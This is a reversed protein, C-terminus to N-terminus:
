HVFTSFYYSPVNPQSSRKPSPFSLKKILTSNQNCETIVSFLSIIAMSLKREQKRHKVMYLYTKAINLCICLLQFIQYNHPLPSILSEVVTPSYVELYMCEDKPLINAINHSLTPLSNEVQNIAENNPKAQNHPPVFKLKPICVSYM